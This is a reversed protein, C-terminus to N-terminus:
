QDRRNISYPALSGFEFSMSKRQCELHQPRTPVCCLLMKQQQM